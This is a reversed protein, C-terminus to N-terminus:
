WTCKYGVEKPYSFHPSDEAPSLEVQKHLESHISNASCFAMARIKMKAFTLCDWFEKLSVKGYVGSGPGAILVLCCRM